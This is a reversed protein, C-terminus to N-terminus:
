SGWQDAKRDAKQAAMLDVLRVVTQGATPDAKEGVLQAAKLDATQVAKLDVLRVVTQGATPDAMQDVTKV